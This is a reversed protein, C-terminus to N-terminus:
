VATRLRQAEVTNQSKNSTKSGTAAKLNSWSSLPIILQKTEHKHFRRRICDDVLALLGTAVVVDAVDPTSERVIKDDTIIMTSPPVWGGADIEDRAADDSLLEPVIRAVIRNDNRRLLTYSVERAAGVKHTSRQWGYSSGWYEFDYRKNGRYGHRKLDVHAYNTFELSIIQTSSANGQKTSHSSSPREAPEDDDNFSEYGSDHRVLPSPSSTAEVDPKSKLFGFAHSLSRHLGIKRGIAHRHCKRACHCVERGSDRGYRRLSFDRSQLDYMRLHFLVVDIDRRSTTGVHTYVRLNMNGDITSDDHQIHLRRSSPFLDAFDHSTTPMAQSVSSFGPDVGSEVNDWRADGNWTDDTSPTDKSITSRSDTIGNSSRSEWHTLYAVNGDNEGYAHDLSDSSDVLSASPKHQHQNM